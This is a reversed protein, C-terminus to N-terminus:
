LLDLQDPHYPGPECGDKRPIDHQRTGQSSWGDVEVVLDRTKQGDEAQGIEIEIESDLVDHSEIKLSLDWSMDVAAVVVIVMLDHDFAM